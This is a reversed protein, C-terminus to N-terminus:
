TGDGGDRQQDLYFEKLRDFTGTLAHGRGFVALLKILDAETASLYRGHLEGREAAGALATLEQRRQSLVAGAKVALAISGALYKAALSADADAIGDAQEDSM